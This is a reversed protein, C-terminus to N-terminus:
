NLAPEVRNRGLDKAQYLLRDAAQFMAELSGLGLDDCLGISMTVSLGAALEQWPEQEICQRLVECHQRAQALNSDVLVALFEEGGYRVLLDSSRINEQLLRAVRTLVADGIAHSYRDNIEKFHDLDALLVCLPRQHRLALAFAPQGAEALYRRNHLGTLPDRLSQERLQEAQACITAHSAQLDRHAQLLQRAIRNFTLALQGIEDHSRVALPQPMEGDPRMQGLAALLERLSAVLRRSLLLGLLVALAAAVALGLLLAQRIFHLYTEDQLSLNPEGIPLAYFTTHADIPLPKAQARVQADVTQGLRYGPPALLVTGSADFLLFLFPPPGIRPAPKAIDRAAPAPWHMHQEAVFDPFAQAQTAAAWSGYRGVYGAVDHSFNNFAQERVADRFQHMVMWWATGGVAGAVLLGFFLLSLTLKLRLSVPKKRRRFITM